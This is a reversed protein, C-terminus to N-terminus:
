PRAPALLTPGVEAASAGRRVLDRAWEIRSSLGLLLVGRVRGEWSFLFAGERGPELWLTEHDLRASLEGVGEFLLEGVRFWKRPLHDYEALPEGAFAAAMNAGVLRGMHEAHDSSEVRMLQGLALYPFEAVDGAAWVHPRSARGVEDVVIGSDIDLGAAEALEVLPEGGVDVLVLQTTLDSGGRTRAHVQGTSEVIRELTEGTVVEVDHDRLYEVIGAGLERPLMRPMPYEEPLVLTVGIDRSRLTMCMELATFGGGVIAVHQVRQLRHELELYDELDRFHRVSAQEAGVAQLRRPRCGTAILLEDYGIEDGSEDWLLRKEPDLEVVERRLRLDVRQERYWDDPHVPLQDLLIEGTWVEKTLPSRHYPRHNERSLLLITGAPDRSRIGELAAAAALGGGVICYRYHM